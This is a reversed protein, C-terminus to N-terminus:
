SDVIKSKGINLRLNGITLKGIIDCLILMLTVIAYRHPGYKISM